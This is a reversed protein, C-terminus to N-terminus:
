SISRERDRTKGKGIFIFYYYFSSFFPISSFLHDILLVICTCPPIIRKTHMYLQVVSLFYSFFFTIKKHYQKHDKNGEHVRM